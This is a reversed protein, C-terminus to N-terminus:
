LSRLHHSDINNVPEAEKQTNTLQQVTASDLYSRNYPQDIAIYYNKNMHVM